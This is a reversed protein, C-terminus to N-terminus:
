GADLATIVRRLFPGAEADRMFYLPFGFTATRWVNVPSNNLVGAAKGAPTTGASWVALTDTRHAAELAWCFDVGTWRAPIKDRDLTITPYDGFGTAEVFIRDNARRAYRIRLYRSAFGAPFAASDVDTFNGVVDWGTLILRGGRDLYEGLVRRNEANDKLDKVTKDEAHWIVIRKDFLDKPSIYKTEGVRHTVYDFETVAWGDDSTWITDARSSDGGLINRYFRDVQRDDPSGLSGNGDRTEDVIAMKRGSFDAQVITLSYTSPSSEAGTYDRCIAEFRYNGPALDEIDVSGGGWSSWPVDSQGERLFRYRYGQISGYYTVASGNIEFHTTTNPSHFISGDPYYRASGYTSNIRSIAPRFTDSVTFTRLVPESVANGWDRARVEITNSGLGLLLHDVVVTEGADISGVIVADGVKCFQFKSQEIWNTVPQGNVWLRYWLGSYNTDSADVSFAIGRGTTAGSAFPAALSNIRPIGNVARFQREAPNSRLGENDVSWVKITHSAPLTRVHTTDTTDPDSSIFAIASDGRTTFATPGDDVQLYYGTVYGDEDSGFWQVRFMPTPSLYHDHIANTDPAVTIRVTPAKNSKPDGPTKPECATLSLILTSVLPLVLFRVIQLPRLKQPIQKM